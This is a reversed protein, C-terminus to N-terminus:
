VNPILLSYGINCINYNNSMMIMRQVRDLVKNPINGGTSTYRSGDKNGFKTLFSCHSKTGKCGNCSARHGSVVCDGDPGKKICTEWRDNGTLLITGIKKLAKIKAKKSPPVTLLDVKSQTQVLPGGLKGTSTAPRAMMLRTRSEAQPPLTSYGTVMNTKPAFISRGLVDAGAPKEPSAKAIYIDPIPVQLSSPQDLYGKNLM